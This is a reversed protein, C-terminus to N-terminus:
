EDPERYINGNDSSTVKLSTISRTAMMGRPHRHLKRVLQQQTFSYGFSFQKQRSRFARPLLFLLLM